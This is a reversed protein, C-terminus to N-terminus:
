PARRAVTVVVDLHGSNDALGGIRENIRLLVEGSANAAWDAERGVPILQPASSREPEQKLPELTTLVLEGLPRGRYYDLTVGEPGSEWDRRSRGVICRGSANVRVVDGRKVFIGTPQWSKDAAVKLRVEDSAASSRSLEVMPLELDFGYELDALTAQWEARLKPWRKRLRQFLWRTMSMDPRMPQDLLREFVDRSDPHHKLFVVAAWSWAYAEADQHARSGYRLILELTPAIGDELQSQIVTIRGWGPVELKTKPIVGMQLTGTEPSWRHTGYWEALGEMLWPPGNSGFHKSMFWHTGEHLLLHRHYYSTPQESVWVEDGWQFGYPFEPLHTPLLGERVFRERARMMYATVKWNEVKSPAVGFERCWQPVAADFLAPLQALDDDLPMDTVIRVHKGELTRFQAPLDQQAFCTSSLCFAYIAVAISRLKWWLM